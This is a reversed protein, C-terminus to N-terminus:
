RKEATGTMPHMSLPCQTRIVIETYPNPYGVPPVINDESKNPTTTHQNRPWSTRHFSSTTRQKGYHSPPQITLLTLLTGGRKGEKKTQSTRDVKM